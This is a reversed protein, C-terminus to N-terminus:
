LGNVRPYQPIYDSILYSNVYKDMVTVNELWKQKEKFFRNPSQHTNQSHNHNLQENRIKVQLVLNGEETRHM